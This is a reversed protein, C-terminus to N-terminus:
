TAIVSLGILSDAASPDDSNKLTQVLRLEENENFLVTKRPELIVKETELKLKPNKELIPSYYNRVNNLKNTVFKIKNNEKEDYLENKDHYRLFDENIPILINNSFLYNIFEKNEKIIIDKSERMEVLYNYIDDALGSKLQQLSLFKQILTYDILKRENSQIIEIYRYEGELEEKESLFSVLDEKDEKIYIQRFIFTKLLNHFNDPILFNDIIYDEGLENFLRLTSEFKLPNNNIVIKVKDMTLNHFGQINKIDIFANILKANNDANYFNPISFTADKQNKGTEIINTIFLDRNGTYNYAIGLYIYFM